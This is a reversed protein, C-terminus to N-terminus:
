ERDQLTTEKADYNVDKEALARSRDSIQQQAM